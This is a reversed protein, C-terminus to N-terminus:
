LDIDAAAEDTIFSATNVEEAEVRFDDYGYQFKNESSFSVSFYPKKNSKSYIRGYWETLDIKQKAAQKVLRFPLLGLLFYLNTQQPDLGPFHKHFSQVNELLFNQDFSIWILYYGMNEELFVEHDREELPYNKDSSVVDALFNHTNVPLQADFYKDEIDPVPFLSDLTIRSPWIKYTQESSNYAFSLTKM